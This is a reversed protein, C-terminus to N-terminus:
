SNLEQKVLKLTENEDNIKFGFPLINQSRVFNYKEAWLEPYNEKYFAIEKETQEREANIETKENKIEKTDTKTIKLPEFETKESCLFKFKSITKGEKIKEVYINLETTQNVEEIPKKIVKEVFHDTRGSYENNKIDFTKRLTKIDYEFFWENKKNGNAGKKGKWSLAIEYYRMAYFSRLKGMDQLQYKTFGKSYEILAKALQPNFVLWILGDKPSYLTSEVWAFTAFLEKTEVGVFSSQLEKLANKILEQQKTGTRQMGLAKIFVNQRFCLQYGIEKDTTGAKQWTIIPFHTMAFSLIRKAMPSCKYFGQSIQNPQLTILQMDLIRDEDYIKEKM